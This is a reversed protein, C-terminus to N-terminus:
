RRWPLSHNPRIDRKDGPIKARDCRAKDDTWSKPLYLRANVITARTGNVMSAYVGVQCNEVKGVAGAYQRAVGM